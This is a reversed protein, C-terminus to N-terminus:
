EEDEARQRKLAKRLARVREDFGDADYNVDEVDLQELMDMLEDSHDTRAGSSVKVFAMESWLVAKLRQADESLMQMEVVLNSNDFHILQTRIRVTEGQRAPRLYSLHHKTIVWSANQERALEGMNLAYHQAVQDERANLFYDLYRANNLHGLMDCDQFYIRHTTEPTRVLSATAM